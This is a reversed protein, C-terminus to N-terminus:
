GRVFFFGSFKCFEEAHAVVDVGDEAVRGPLGHGLDLAVEVAVLVEAGLLGELVAHDVPDKRRRPRDLLLQGLRLLRRRRPFPPRHSPRLFPNPILSPSLSNTNGKDNNM